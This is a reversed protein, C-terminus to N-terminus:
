EKSKLIAYICDDVLYKFGLHSAKEIIEDNYSGPQFFIYEIGADKANDLVGMGINPSVVMDLVDIKEPLEDVSSYIEEGEIEEYNPNVGYTKYGHEKLKKWIKYGWSHKKESVGSVAWIKKDLMEKKIEQSDM